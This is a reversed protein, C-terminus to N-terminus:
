LTKRSYRAKTALKSLKNSSITKSNFKLKDLNRKNIIDQIESPTFASIYNNKNNGGELDKKM